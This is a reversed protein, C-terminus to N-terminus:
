TGQHSLLPLWCFVHQAKAAYLLAYRPGCACLLNFLSSITHTKTIQFAWHQVEKLLAVGTLNSGAPSWTDVHRLSLYTSGRMLQENFLPSSYEINLKM